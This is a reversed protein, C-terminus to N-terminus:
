YGGYAIDIPMTRSAHETRSRPRPRDVRCSPKVGLSAAVEGLIQKNISKTGSHLAGRPGSMFSEEALM